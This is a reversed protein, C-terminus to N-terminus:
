YVEDHTGIDILEITKDIIKFRLRIEYTISCSWFEKLMGSLKHTKITPDYPNMILKEVVLRFKKRLHPNNKFLKNSLKLFSPTTKIQM